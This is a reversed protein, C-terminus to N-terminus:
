DFNEKVWDKIFKELEDPNQFSYTYPIVCLKIGNEHCLRNKRDDQEQQKIFNYETKQFYENFQYHQIGNYEVGLKLEPCYTDLELGQLFKPRCKRFEFESFIEQFIRVSMKESQYSCKETDCYYCNGNVNVIATRNCTKCTSHFTM